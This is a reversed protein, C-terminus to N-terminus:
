LFSGVNADLYADIFADINADINVDISSLSTVQGSSKLQSFVAASHRFFADGRSILDLHHCRINEQVHFM